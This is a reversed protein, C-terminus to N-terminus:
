QPTDTNAVVQFANSVTRGAMRCEGNGRCAQPFYRIRMTGEFVGLPRQEVHLVATPGVMRLTDIRSEGPRIAIQHDHGVCAWNPSYASREAEPDMLELAFTPFRSDPYCRPLFVTGSGRNVTRVEVDFGYSAYAGTGGIFTAIYVERDTSLVVDGDEPTVLSECSLAPLSLLVTAVVPFRM